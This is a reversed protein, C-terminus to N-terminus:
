DKFVKDYMEIADQEQEIFEEALTNILDNVSTQKMTAIKRLDEYVSPYFLLNTRKDKTEGKSKPRGVTAPHERTIFTEAPNNIEFKKSM